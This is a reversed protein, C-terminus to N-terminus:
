SRDEDRRFLTLWSQRIFGWVGLYIIRADELWPSRRRLVVAKL